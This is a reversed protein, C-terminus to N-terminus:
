IDRTIDCVQTTSLCDHQGNARELSLPIEIISSSRGNKYAYSWYLIAITKTQLIGYLQLHVLIRIM